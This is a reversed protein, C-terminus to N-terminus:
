REPLEEDSLDIVLKACGLAIAAAPGPRIPLV